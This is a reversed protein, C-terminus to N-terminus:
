TSYLVDVGDFVEYATGTIRHIYTHPLDIIVSDETLDLSMLEDWTGGSDSSYWLKFYGSANNTERKYWTAGSKLIYFLSTWFSRRIKFGLGLGLGIAPM